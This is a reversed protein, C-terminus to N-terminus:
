AATETARGSEEGRIPPKASPLLLPLIFRFAVGKGDENNQVWLRGSHMKVISQVLSLGMGLGEPKTTFFSEFIRSLIEPQIGHGTDRVEVQIYGDVGASTSVFLHRHSPVNDKMADMANAVLNLMVQQLHVIDGQVVAAPAHIDTHLHVGRRVVDGEVLRIADRVVANIDLAEMKLEHKRVLARIRRIAEGARVAEGRVESLIELIEQDRSTQPDVMHKMADLNILMSGLPQNLEHVIMATFEGVVALRSAHMLNQKAEQAHKHDTLDIAVGVYGLFEGDPAYRPVGRDLVWRYVGDHRRLRYELEFPERADFSSTYAKLCHELDEAHVGEAWGNGVEQRMTRGTFDLWGRNFFVCLKDTGAMWVLMPASDAMIRFREESERLSREAKRRASLNVVLGAIWAFQVLLVTAGISILYKHQEWLTRQRFRVISGAPLNAESIGWRQLERWDYVPEGVTAPPIHISGPNEGRLIRDAVDATKDGLKRLDLVPGGITGLGLDEEFLGIMPANADSHLDKIVGGYDHPVGAVDVFMSIYFIVTHPPLHRVRERTEQLSYQGLWTFSVTNTYGALDREVEQRLFVELPSSGLVFAINTTGPLIRRVSDVMYPFNFQSPVATTNTDLTFTRLHRVEVSSLLLPASPFMEKRTRLAFRVALGGFPVVLDPDHGGFLTRVYRVTPEDSKSEAFQQGELSVEHFEIPTKSREALETQFSESVTNFPAFSRGFSNLILIRKPGEDTAARGVM